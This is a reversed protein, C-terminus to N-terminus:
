ALVVPGPQAEDHPQATVIWGDYQGGKLNYPVTFTVTTQEGHVRFTAACRM